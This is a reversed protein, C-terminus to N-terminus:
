CTGLKFNQSVCSEVSSKSQLLASRTRRGFRFGEVVAIEEQVERSVPHHFGAGLRRMKKMIRSIAKSGKSMATTRLPSSRAAVLGAHSPIGDWAQLNWFIHGYIAM